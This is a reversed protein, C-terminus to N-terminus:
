LAIVWCFYQRELYLKLLTYLLIRLNASLVEDTPPKGRMKDVLDVVGQIAMVDTVNALHGSACCSAMMDRSVSWRKLEMTARPACTPPPHFKACRYCDLISQFVDPPCDIYTHQKDVLAVHRLSEPVTRRFAIEYLPTDPYRELMHKNIALTAGSVEMRFIDTDSRLVATKEDFDAEHSPEDSLPKKEVDSNASKQPKFGNQRSSPAVKNQKNPGKKAQIVTTTVEAM